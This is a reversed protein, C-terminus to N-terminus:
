IGYRSRLADYNQLIEADSLNKNYVKWAGINGTFNNIVGGLYLGFGDYKGLSLYTGAAPNSKTVYGSM